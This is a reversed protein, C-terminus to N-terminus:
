SKATLRFVFAFVVGAVWLILYWQILDDYRSRIETKWENSLRRMEDILNTTVSYRTLQDDTREARTAELAEMWLILEDAPSEGLAERLAKSTRPSLAM